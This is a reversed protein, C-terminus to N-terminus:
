QGGGGFANGFGGLLDGLGGMGGGQQLQQMMQEINPIGGGGGGMQAMQRALQPNLQRMQQQMRAMQAPNMNMGGPGAAGAGQQQKSMLSMLGNKGGMKKVMGSMASFSKLLMDFEAPVCGSGRCVRTVRTPQATFEKGDGDLEKPTMSDMMCIMKRMHKQTDQETGEPFMDANMGPIMGMVKTLPGLQMIMQFQDYFDRFSYKGQQIRKMMQESNKEINMDKMTEVLGSLDGMGLMKGIFSKSSFADLDHMHEGTGIFIIPSKTTAVASIAGGGKAHGDMKTIIISGVNVAANFAKAQAEAAQGISGDLVFISCDPLVATEIQKMEDFLAQEQKHRGSTDVIILEFGAKRFMDVGESAVKAADTETYSGYFPIKAKTANQKLQDFAGARFTDAGVLCTKWGRRQYYYAFKTCSTTKGAGQLGVFMIVNCRGRVPSYPVTGPDVLSCLEDFVARQILRTKNIGAALKSLDVKAKVNKRLQQVLRVNIDSELLAKCIDRLISDLLEEDVKSSKTLSQLAANLKKGLENLVM